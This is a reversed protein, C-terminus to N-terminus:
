AKQVITDFSTNVILVEGFDVPIKFSNLLPIELIIAWLARIVGAHTVVLVREGRNTLKVEAYWKRVRQVLDSFTEGNPPATVDFSDAWNKVSEKALDDWRAQEWAGFNLERLRKDIIVHDGLQEALQRCRRMDSSYVCDFYAPLREQYLKLEEEFTGGVPVDTQGYCIGTEVAVKSHRIVYIEM